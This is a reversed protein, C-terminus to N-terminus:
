KVFELQSPHHLIIEPKGKYLKIYGTAKVIKNKFYTDPSRFSEVPFYKLNDKFIVITFDGRCKLTLVKKSLYTDIIELEVVRMYGIYDKAEEPSIPHTEIDEWLGRKNSRAVEEADLFEKLHKENPPYIYLAALGKKVLEINIMKDGVYVYSLLRGYKDKKVVDSELKVSKGQVLKENFKRAEEGYPMPDYEWTSGNKKGLEPTDIGLYRVEKGDSLVITDGDIVHKVSLAGAKQDNGIFGQQKAFTLAGALLLAIIRKKGIIRM